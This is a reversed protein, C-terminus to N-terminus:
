SMIGKFRPSSGMILTVQTTKLRERRPKMNHRLYRQAYDMTGVPQKDEDPIADLFYQICDLLHYKHSNVIESKTGDKWRYSRLEKWLLEHKPSIHLIGDLLHGVAMKILYLKGRDKRRKSRPFVFKTPQEHHAAAGIFGADDDAISLIPTYGESARLKLHQEYLHRDHLMGSIIQARIVHWIKTVPDQAFVMRGAKSKVAPDIVEVHRWMAASYTPPVEFGILEKTIEKFIHEDSSSVTGYLITNRKAESLSALQKMIMDKSGAYVPNDFKSLMFKKAAGAEVQGEIFDLLEQDEGKMTFASMFTGMRADVRRQAEEAVGVPIQEDTFVAHVTYGQVAKRAKEDGHSHPFFIIRNGNKKNTVMQIYPSGLREEKWDDPNQFLKRIRPQYLNLDLNKLQEGILLINLPDDKGWVRWLNGCKPCEYDEVVDTLSLKKGPENCLKNNCIHDTPRRWYPSSEEAMWVLARITGNTKGSNGVLFGNCIFNHDPHDVTLDFVERIGMKAKGILVAEEFNGQILMTACDRGKKFEGIFVKSVGGSRRNVKYFEHKNTSTIAYHVEDATEFTFRNVKQLGHNHKEEVTSIERKGTSVNVSIVKDGVSVRSICKESGDAMLVFNGKPISQNGGMVWIYKEAGTLALIPDLQKQSPRSKHSDPSWAQVVQEARLQREVEAQILEEETLEINM